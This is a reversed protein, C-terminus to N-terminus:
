IMQSFERWKIPIQLFAEKGKIEIVKKVLKEGAAQEKGYGTVTKVGEPYLDAFYVRSGYTAFGECWCMEEKSEIRKESIRSWLEHSLEHVAANDVIDIRSGQRIDQYRAMFYFPVYINGKFDILRGRDISNYIWNPILYFAEKIAAITYEVRFDSDNPVRGKKWAHYIADQHADGYFLDSFLGKKDKVLIKGLGINCREEIRPQYYDLKDRVMEILETRESKPLPYLSIYADWAFKCLRGITGM